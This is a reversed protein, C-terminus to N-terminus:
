GRLASEEVQGERLTILRDAVAQAFQSDHTAVLLSAGGERLEGILEILEVVGSEDLGFTPEDLLVVSAGTGAVIALNLRRKQGSSLEFPNAGLLPGLGFRRGLAEAALPREGSDVRRAGFASAEELEDEVTYSVFLHEPNQPVYALHCRKSRVISGSSPKRAGAILRLLTTKGSGNPGRLVTVEGPLLELNVQDLLNEASPRRSWSFRVAEARVLPEGSGRRRPLRPFSSGWPSQSHGDRDIREIRGGALRVVQEAEPLEETRHEVFAMTLAPRSERLRGLFDYVRRRNVEDLYAGPEDLLMLRPPRVAFAAIAVLQKEGGSLEHVQRDALDVIGLEQLTTELVARITATDVEQNELILALESRVSPAALQSDPDQLILGVRRVRERPTLSAPDRGALDLEGVREGPVVGPILGACALALSSKGSGNPGVFWSVSGAELTLDADELAPPRRRTFRVGLGRATLSDSRTLTGDPTM